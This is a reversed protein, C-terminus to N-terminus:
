MGLEEVAGTVLGKRLVSTVKSVAFGSYFGFLRKVRQSWRSCRHMNRLIRNRRPINEHDYGVIHVARCMQVLGFVELSPSNKIM